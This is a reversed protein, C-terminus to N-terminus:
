HCKYCMFRRDSPWRPLQVVRRQGLQMQGANSLPLEAAADTHLSAHTLYAAPQDRAASVKWRPLAGHGVRCFPTGRVGPGVRHSNLCIAFDAANHRTHPRRQSLRRSPESDPDSSQSLVPRSGCEGGAQNAPRRLRGAVLRRNLPARLKWLRGPGGCVAKIAECAVEVDGPM